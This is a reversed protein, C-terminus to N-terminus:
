LGPCIVLHLGATHAVGARAQPDAILAQLYLDLGQLTADAPLPLPLSATGAGPTGPTGGLLLPLIIHPGALSVYLAGFPAPTDASGAGLLMLAPAGGLAFAIGVGFAPNGIAPMGGFLEFRPEFSASGPGAVGFSQPPMPCPGTITVQPCLGAITFAYAGPPVYAGHDDRQDWVSSYSGGPPILSLVALCNPVHIPPQSCDQPHVSDFLCSSFLPINTTGNNTLTVQIPEGQSPAAPDFSIVVGQANALSLAALSFLCSRLAPLTSM